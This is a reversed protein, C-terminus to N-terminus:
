KAPAPPPAAGPMTIEKLELIPHTDEGVLFTRLGIGRVPEGKAGRWDTRRGLRMQDDAEAHTGAYLTPLYVEGDPGGRVVMHARQWLLDRPREPPRFELLEVREIPIWYYKGTSTLVEFFSATLDDLDRLDDFPQGNCVGAPKPRQEEAQALLRAAEPVQKDRLLISAELHLRLGPTPQELFEPLRGETYFQRRAQEARLLQRFLSFAMAAEPNQNSLVDLQNDARELEGAICLLECLFTRPKPDAPHAKVEAGIATIAERLNGAQYHEHANM